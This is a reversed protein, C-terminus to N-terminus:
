TSLQKQTTMGLSSSSFTLLDTEKNCVNVTTANSHYSWFEGSRRGTIGCQTTDSAQLSLIVLTHSDDTLGERLGKTLCPM